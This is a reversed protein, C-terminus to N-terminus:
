SRTARGEGGRRKGGGDRSQDAGMEAGTKSEDKWARIQGQIQVQTVCLLSYSTLTCGAM